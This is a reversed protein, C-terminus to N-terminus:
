VDTRRTAGRVPLTSQFEIATPRSSPLSTAGRVPLTSQFETELYDAIIKKTAGRVPLTSQFLNNRLCKLFQAHREGCPSRPNFDADQHQQAPRDPDSGARPAHISIMFKVDDMDDM